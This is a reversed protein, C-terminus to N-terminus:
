ARDLIISFEQTTNTTKIAYIILVRIAYREPINESFVDILNIRPENNNIAIAIGTKLESNTVDDAFEFLFSNINGAIEKSSFPRDYTNALIITKLAQNIANIGSVTVLDGTLPHAKGTISLDRYAASKGTLGSKDLLEGVSLKNDRRNIDGVPKTASGKYHQHILSNGVTETFPTFAFTKEFSRAFSITLYQGYVKLPFDELGRIICIPKTNNALIISGIKKGKTNLNLPFDTNGIDIIHSTDPALIHKISAVTNTAIVHATIDNNNNDEEFVYEDDMIFMKTTTKWLAPTAIYLTRESQRATYNYYFQLTAM